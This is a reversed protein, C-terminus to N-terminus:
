LVRRDFRRRRTITLVAEAPRKRHKKLVSEIAEVSKAIRQSLPNEKKSDISAHADAHIQRGFARDSKFNEGGLRQDEVITQFSLYLTEACKRLDNVRGRIEPGW